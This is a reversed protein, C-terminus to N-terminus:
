SMRLWIFVTVSPQVINFPKGGGTTKTESYSDATATKDDGSAYLRDTSGSPYISGEGVEHTHKVLEELTQTHTYEGHISAVGKTWDPDYEKSSVGVIARGEGYREWAGYGLLTSPNGSNTTLYLDGVKYTQM